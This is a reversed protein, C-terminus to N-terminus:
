PHVLGYGSGEGVQFRVLDYGRTVWPEIPGEPGVWLIRLPAPPLVLEPWPSPAEAKDPVALALRELFGRAESWGRGPGLTTPRGIGGADVVTLWVTEGRGLLVWVLSAATEVATEVLAWRIRLPYRGARLDVVVASPRAVTRDFTRVQPHGRRAWAASSLRSLPDGPQFDRYSRFRSPDDVLAPEWLRPGSPVGDRPWRAVPHLAPYVILTRGPSTRVFPFLGTPDTGSVVLPGLSREGRERGRVTFAFRLRTFPPAAVWRRTQGWSELGGASDFVSLLGSPLPSRNELRTRVQVQRGSFSRLLPDDARAVLARAVVFSWLAGFALFLLVFLAAWRILPWPVVAWVLLLFVTLGTKPPM